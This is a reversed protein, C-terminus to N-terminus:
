LIHAPVGQILFHVISPDALLLSANGGGLPKKEVTITSSRMTGSVSNFVDNVRMDCEMASEVSVSLVVFVSGHKSIPSSLRGSSGMAVSFPAWGGVWGVM